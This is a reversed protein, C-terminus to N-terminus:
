SQDGGIRRISDAFSEATVVYSRALEIEKTLDADMLKQAAVHARGLELRALALRRVVDSHQLTWRTTRAM